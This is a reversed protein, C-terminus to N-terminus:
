AGRLRSTCAAIRAAHRLAFFSLCSLLLCFVHLLVSVVRFVCTTNESQMRRNSKWNHIFITETCRHRM